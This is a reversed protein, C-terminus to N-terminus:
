PGKISHHTDSGHVQEHNFSIGAGQLPQPGEDVPGPETKTQVPSPKCYWEPVSSLSTDECIREASLFHTVM